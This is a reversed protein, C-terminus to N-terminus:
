YEKRIFEVGPSDISLGSYDLYDAGTDPIYEDGEDFYGSVDGHNSASYRNFEVNGWEPRLIKTIKSVVKDMKKDAEDSLMRVKVWDGVTNAYVRYSEAWNDFEKRAGIPLYKGGNGGFSDSYEKDSIFYSDISDSGTKMSKFVAEIEDPLILRVVEDLKVAEKDIFGYILDYDPDGVIIFSSSSSNSVFCLRIKM